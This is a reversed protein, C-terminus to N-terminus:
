VEERARILAPLTRLLIALDRKFSVQEVYSLDVAAHDTLHRGDGRAELQWPGTLGPRAAHRRTSDGDLEAAAALSLPRPGVLSMHGLAVNWLQPLEDLSTSRLWRSLRLNRGRLDSQHDNRTNVRYLNFRTDNRGTRTVRLLPSSGFVIWAMVLLVLVIPLTLVTLVVGVARDFLPKGFRGYIGQQSTRVHKGMLFVTSV